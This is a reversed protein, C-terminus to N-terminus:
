ANPGTYTGDSASVLVSSTDSSVGSRRHKVYLTFSAADSITWAGDTDVVETADNSTWYVLDGEFDPPWADIEMEPAYWGAGKEVQTTPWCSVTVTAGSRVAKIRNPQWPTASKRTATVLFATADATEISELASYLCVKVYFSDMYVGILINNALQTLWVPDDNSHAEVPTNYMGRILGTLRWNNGVATITQYGILENGIVICRTFYFLETRSLSTFYFGSDEISGPTSILIGTSDDILDTDASYDGILTGRRSFTGFSRQSTYTTNDPSTKAIFGIEAGPREVLLLYAPEDEYVRNYPLEFYSQYAAAAPSYDPTTSASGGATDYNSDFLTDLREILSFTIENKDIQSIDKEMVRYEADEISYDSHSITIVDGPNIDWFSQNVTCQIEAWPYSYRKMLEWLRRSAEDVTTIASLDFTRKKEYGVLRRIQPNRVRVVRESYDQTSDSFTARFDSYCEHYGKRRFSFKLFDDETMSAVSTDSDRHAKLCYQGETNKYVSFDGYQMLARLQERTRREKAFAYNIGYGNTYWYTSAEEFTTLNISGSSAGSEILVEYVVAALNAGTALTEGTLGTSTTRNVIFHITPVTLVNYGLYFQEIFIHCLPNLRLRQSYTLETVGDEEYMTPSWTGTGDSFSYTGLESVLDLKKDDVYADVLTVDPGQCIGQWVDMYYHYGVIVEEDSRFPGGDVEEVEAVTTLRGYYLLNGTVRVTGIIFPVCVGENSSTVQMGALTAPDLDAFDPGITMLYIGFGVGALLGLGAIALVTFGM